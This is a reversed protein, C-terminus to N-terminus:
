LSSLHIAVNYSLMRFQPIDIDVNMSPPAKKSNQDALAAIADLDAEFCKNPLLDFHWVELNRFAACLEYIPFGPRPLLINAGQCGEGSIPIEKSGKAGFINRTNSFM